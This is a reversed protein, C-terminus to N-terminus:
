GYQTAKGLKSAHTPTQDQRLWIHWAKNAGMPLKGSESTINLLPHSLSDSSSIPDSSLPSFSRDVYLIFPFNILLLFGWFLIIM